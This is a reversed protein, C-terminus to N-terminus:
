GFMSKILVCLGMVISGVISWVVLGVFITAALAVM